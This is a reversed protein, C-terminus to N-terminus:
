GWVTFLAIPVMAPFLYRGQPQVFTLNYIVDGALVAAWTLFLGLWAPGASALAGSLAASMGRSVLRRVGWALWGAAVAATFAELLAYDREPLPVSMWGFQGWFSHFSVAVFNMLQAEGFAGTQLQGAAVDKQRAQVFLDSWGYILGNRVFWWGAVVAAAGAAQGGNLLLRRAFGARPDKPRWSGLLVCGAALLAAPLYITVKTLLAAGLLLGLAPWAWRRRWGAALAVYLLLLLSVVLDALSDNQVSADVFLVMPPLGAMAAAALGLRGKEPLVLRACCYAVPLLLLGFLVSLLRLAHLRGGLKYVVAGLAYYLPPQHAEYRFPALSPLNTRPGLPLIQAPYDGAQLVPLQGREALYQVYNFHAPEDPAQWPPTAFAYATALLLYIAAILALAAHGRTVRMPSGISLATDARALSM